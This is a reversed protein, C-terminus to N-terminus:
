FFDNKKLLLLGFVVLHANLLYFKGYFPELIQFYDRLSQLIIDKIMWVM